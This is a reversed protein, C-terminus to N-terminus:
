GGAVLLVGIVTVATGLLRARLDREGFALGGLLVTVLAGSRKITVVNAALTLRLAEMQAVFMAAFLLGQVALAGANRRLSGDHSPAPASDTGVGGSARGGPGTGGGAEGGGAEGARERERRRAWAMLPLFGLGLLATLWVGYLAPSSANVAIRDVVGSVSWLAAVALMRRAGRDRLPAALPALPGHRLDRLNLLYVGAVVLAIGALGRLGPVDGLLLWEVPVLLIPTLALLPVTLGVDGRQIASAYLFFSLLGLASTTLLAPWFVPEVEPMGQLALYGALPPFAFAFIAWAAVLAPVRDTLRKTWAGQLGYLLATILALLPWTM